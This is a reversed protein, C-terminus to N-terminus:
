FREELVNIAFQLGRELQEVEEAADMENQVSYPYASKAADLRRKATALDKKTTAITVELSAKSETVKLDLEEKLQENQSKPAILDRYLVKNTQKKTIQAM